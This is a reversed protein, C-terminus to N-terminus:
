WRGAPPPRASTTGPRGDEALLVGHQAHLVEVEGQNVRGGLEVMRDLVVGLVPRNLVDHLDGEVAGAHRGYGDAILVKLRDRQDDAAVGVDEDLRGPVLREDPRLDHPGALGEGAGVHQDGVALLDALGAGVAHEVDAVLGQRGRRGHRHEADRVAM